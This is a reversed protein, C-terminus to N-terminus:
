RRMADAGELAAPLGVEWGSTSLERARYMDGCESARRGVFRRRRSLGDEFMSPCGDRAKNRVQSARTRQVRGDVNGRSHSSTRVMGRRCAHGSDLIAERERRPLNKGLRESYREERARGGDRPVDTLDTQARSSVERSPTRDELVENLIALAAEKKADGKFVHVVASLVEVIRMAGALRALLGGLGRTVWKM